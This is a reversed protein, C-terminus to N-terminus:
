DHNLPPRPLLGSPNTSQYSLHASSHPSTRSSGAQGAPTQNGLLFWAPKTTVLIACLADMHTISIAAQLQSYHFAPIFTNLTTNQEAMASTHRSVM